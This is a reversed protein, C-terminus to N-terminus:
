SILFNLVGEPSPSGRTSSTEIDHVGLQKEVSSLRNLVSQLLNQLPALEELTM